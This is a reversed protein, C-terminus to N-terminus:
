VITKTYGTIAQMLYMHIEQEEWGAFENTNMCECRIIGGWYYGRQSSTMPAFAVDMTVEVRKGRLQHKRMKFLEIRDPIFQEQEDDSIIGHHIYTPQKNM